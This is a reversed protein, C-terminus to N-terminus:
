AEGPDATLGATCSEGGAGDGIGVLAPPGKRPGAAERPPPFVVNETLPVLRESMGKETSILDKLLIKSLIGDVTSQLGGWLSRITCDVSHVCLKKEGGYRNCYAPQFVRGGLVSLVAGVSIGDLPNALRYGGHRGRVSELLGGMRLIRILKGAYQPTIGEIEAIEGITLSLDRVGRLEEEQIRRAIQLMCRLGYEEQATFRM